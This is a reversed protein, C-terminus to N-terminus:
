ASNCVLGSRAHLAQAGARVAAPPLLEAAEAPTGSKTAPDGPASVPLVM